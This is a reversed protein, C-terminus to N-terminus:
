GLRYGTKARTWVKSKFLFYNNIENLINKQKFLANRKQGEFFSEVLVFEANQGLGTTHM